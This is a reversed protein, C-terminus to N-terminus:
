TDLELNAVWNYFNMIMDERHLQQFDAVQRILVALTTGLDLVIGVREVGDARSRWTILDRAHVLEFGSSDENAQQTLALLSHPQAIVLSTSIPPWLGNEVAHAASSLWSEDGVVVEYLIPMLRYPEQGLLAAAKEPALGVNLLDLAVAQEVLQKWGYFATRGRGTKLGSPCGYSRLHELRRRFATAAEPQVGYAAAFMAEALKARMQM